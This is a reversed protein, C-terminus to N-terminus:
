HHAFSVEIRLRIWDELRLTGLLARFPKIGLDTLRGEWTGRVELEKGKRALQVDLGIARSIGRVSLDGTLTGRELTGVYRGRFDIGPHRAVDLVERGRLNDQMKARDSPPLNAPVEIAGADFRVEVLSEIRDAAGGEGVDVAFPAPCASLTPNHGIAQLLGCTRLDVLVRSEPSVQLLM